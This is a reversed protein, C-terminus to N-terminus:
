GGSGEAVRPSAASEEGALAARAEDDSMAELEAIVRDLQADRIADVKSAQEALVPTDYLVRLPVEVDLRARISSLLRTVVLSHGGLWFFNDTASVREVKLLESWIAALARETDTRPEVDEDAASGSGSSPEPLARRDVKGSPTLPFAHLVTFSAPVMYDPLRGRLHERLAATDPAGGDRGVVYAALFWGGDGRAGQAVVAASAVQPHEALVVEAEGPEVRHGRVKVQEDARGLFELEGDLRWRARDGTRYMRAGPEDSHPDPLFSAATLAPRGLYGRSVCAGAAYLDGPAGAPATRLARDLVYLRAGAIPRGVPPLAEWADASGELSHASVVHTESPGYQNELKAQPNALFFDRLQPTVRLAEGATVVQRLDPLRADAGEAAEALAQLATFPLFLREVQEARLHRLHAGPDRRTWEDVLVLTGGAWWTALMEQFSVDFSLSAFQLTRAAAGEGWREVQWRLLNCLAGHPMAVGKPRGTSGSTYLVYALNEPDADIPRDSAGDIEFDDQEDTSDDGDVVLLRADTAPLGPVLSRQTVLVRARSDALMYARRDAPYGPDVAVYCGGAKLIALVAVAMEPSRELSVAVRVDPGVGLARLRRALREARADLQAYTLTRAGDSVAVAGPTRAAQREVMRYVPEASGAPAPGREWAALRAREDSSIPSIEGLLRTPDAVLESLLTVLADAVARAEEALYMNPNYTLRLELTEGPVVMLSLPYSTREVRDIPSSEIGNAAEDAHEGGHGWPYNEFVVLTEFLPRDRPLGSWGHISTLAVYGHQRMDATHQQLRSLWARVPEHAPVAVRAPLTNAFMGVMRDIGPVEPPRGSVTVGCVAEDEGAYRALLLAWAGLVLTAPTVACGRMFAQVREWLEPPLKRTELAFRPPEKSEPPSLPLPTAGTIGALEARWFAESASVDQRLVWGVYDRFRPPPPLNAPAGGTEEHYLSWWDGWLLPLSWGDVVAHHCTFLHLHDDAALRATTMRLLPARRMDFPRRYDDEMLAAFADRWEDGRLHSWDLRVCEPEATRFVVQMTRPANDWAFGTRLATYRAVLRGLAREMAPVNLVGRLRSPFQEAYMGPTLLSHFLVGEQLLPLPYLDEILERNMKTPASRTGPARGWDSEFGDIM